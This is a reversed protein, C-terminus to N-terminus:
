GALGRRTQLRLRTFGAGIERYTAGMNQLSPEYGFFLIIQILLERSIQTCIVCLYKQLSNVRVWYGM